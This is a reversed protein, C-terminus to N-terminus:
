GTPHAGPLRNAIAVLEDEGIGNARGGIIAYTEKRADVLLLNVTAADWRCRVKEDPFWYGGTCLLTHLVHPMWRQYYTGTEHSWNLDVRRGRRRDGGSSQGDGNTIQIVLVPYNADPDACSRNYVWTTEQGQDGYSGSFFWLFRYGHSLRDPIGAPPTRFCWDAAAAVLTAPAPATRPAPHPGLSRGIGVLTLAALPLALLIGLVGGHGLPTGHRQGRDGIDHDGDVAAV